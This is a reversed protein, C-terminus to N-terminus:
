QPGGDEVPEVASSLVWGRVQNAFELLKWNGRTERIRAEVGSHIPKSFVLAYGTGNGSRVEAQPVVIVAEQGRRGLTEFAASGGAAGALLLAACLATRHFPLALFARAAVLTWFLAHALLATWVRSELSTTRHWFFLASLVKSESKDPFEDVVQRRAYELTAAALPDGPLYALARRLNLIAPGIERLRLHANGLDYYLHGNRFGRALLARYDQVALRLDAESRASNFLRNAETFLQHPDSMRGAPEAASSPVPGPAPPLVAPSPGPGDPSQSILALALLLASM